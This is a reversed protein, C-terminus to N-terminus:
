PGCRRSSTGKARPTSRARRWREGVLTAYGDPLDDIFEAAHALGAARQVEEDTASPRAFRINDAISRHFMAPDQPVSAIFERLAAQPVKAINQGGIELAGGTVESFRLLLRTLTTKGGGSRGDLGVKEGPAIKLDIRTYDHVNRTHIEQEERERAFARVPEANSITDAVHGALANSAEERLRVLEHRRALNSFRKMKGLVTM